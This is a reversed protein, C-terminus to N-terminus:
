KLFKSISLMQNHTLDNIQESTLQNNSQDPVALFTNMMLNNTVTMVSEEQGALLLKGLGEGKNMGKKRIICMSNIFEISQVQRLFDWNVPHNFLIEFDKMFDSVSLDVGWSQHNVIDILKKFFSISSLPDFLGGQYEAWYSAHLDEVIYIGDSNLLPFYSKFTKIIDVSQHSGDDIILDFRSCYQTIAHFTIDQSVDGTLVKIKENDFKLNDCASNNDCGLILSANQFYSDLIELFGGNLVGIELISVFDKKKESLLREYIPLYLEWKISVKGTHCNFIEEFTNM